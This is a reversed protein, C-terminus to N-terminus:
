PWELKILQKEPPGSFLIPYTPLLSFSFSRHIDNFNITFIMLILLKSLKITSDVSKTQLMIQIALKIPFVRQSVFLVFHDSLEMNGRWIFMQSLNTKMWAVFFCVPTFKVLTSSYYSAEMPDACTCNQKVIVTDHLSSNPPFLTSGCTYVQSEVVQQVLVKQERTLKSAAYVCRPKQCEGCTIVASKYEEFHVRPYPWSRSSHHNQPHSIRWQHNQKWISRRIDPVQKKFCGFSTIVHSPEVMRDNTSIVTRAVVESSYESGLVSSFNESWNCKIITRGFVVKPGWFFGHWSLLWAMHKCTSELYHVSWNDWELYLM